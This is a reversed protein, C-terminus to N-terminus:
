RKGVDNLGENAAEASLTLLDAAGRATTGEMSATQCAPGARDWGAEHTDPGTSAACGTSSVAEAAADNEASSSTVSPHVSSGGAASAPRQDAQDIEEVPARGARALAPAALPRDERTASSNGTVSETIAEIEGFWFALQTPEGRAPRDDGIEAGDAPEHPPAGVTQPSAPSENEVPVGATDADAPVRVGFLLEVTKASM